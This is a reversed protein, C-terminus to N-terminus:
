WPYRNVRQGKTDVQTGPYIRMVGFSSAIYRWAVYDHINNGDRDGDLQLWVEEAKATAAVTKLVDRQSIAM